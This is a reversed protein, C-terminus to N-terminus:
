VFFIQGVDQTLLLVYATASRSRVSVGLNENAGRVAGISMRYTCTYREYLLAIPSALDCHSCILQLISCVM